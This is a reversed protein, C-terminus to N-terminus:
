NNIIQQILKYITMKDSVPFIMYKSLENIYLHSIKSGESLLIDFMSNIYLNIEDKNNINEVYINSVYNLFEQINSEKLYKKINKIHSIISM